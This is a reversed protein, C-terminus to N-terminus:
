DPHDKALAVGMVGGNSKLTLLAGTFGRNAFQEALRDFYSKMVPLVAARVATTTFRGHERFVPRTEASLVVQCNPAYEVLIDRMQREHAPNAYSNIFGVAVAQLGLDHIQKAIAIAQTTDLPTVVDGHAGMRETLAFRFRRPIIPRPKKQYPDYLSQRHQRGIEITDRFGETTVLAVDPFSRELLANTATTTGHMFHSIEDFPINAKAVASVVGESRDRRTTLVKATRREGTKVNWAFLDTFTGGVDVGVRWM